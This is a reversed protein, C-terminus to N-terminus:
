THLHFRTEDVRPRAYGYSSCPYGWSYSFCVPIASLKPVVLVVLNEEYELLLPNFAYM